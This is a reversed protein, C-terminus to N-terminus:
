QLVFFEQNSTLGGDPTKVNVPGTTAGKPVATKLYTDSVVTFTAATGNFSVGTTGTFGQGLIGISKGAKGSNTPIFAVFPTLGLDFSYFTGSGYIGGSSTDGYLKGSTRQLLAVLPKAAKVGDFNQVVAYHRQADVRFITGNNKGGGQWTVGYLNGDTAQVLGAAPYNGDTSGKFSHLLKLQGTPTIQYVVGVNRVGGLLTTGYFNGDNGQILAAVPDAGHTNDFAYLVTLQGAPTIKFVTGHDGSSGGRSATGYFNGDTAQLLGAQPAAGHTVDFRYLTTLTGSLTIKYITGHGLGGALTTGYLNGDTGQVPPAYPFGGDGAGSFEHLIKLKGAPTIRFLTGANSAGGAYTSGYFNGNTALTLGSYPSLGDPGAFDYLDTFTGDPTIRFISGDGFAGGLPATSYLNGDRGQAVAGPRQPNDPDSGSGFNYIVSFTQAQLTLNTGVLALIFIVTFLEKIRMRRMPGEATRLESVDKQIMESARSCLTTPEGSSFYIRPSEVLVIRAAPPRTTLIFVKAGAKAQYAQRSFTLVSLREEIYAINPFRIRTGVTKHIAISSKTCRTPQHM